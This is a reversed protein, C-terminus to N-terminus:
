GDWSLGTGNRDTRKMELDGNASRHRASARTYLRLLLESRGHPDGENVLKSAARARRSKTSFGRGVVWFSVLGAFSAVLLINTRDIRMKYRWSMQHHWEALPTKEHPVTWTGDILRARYAVLATPTIPTIHELYRAEHYSAWSKLRQEYAVLSSILGAVAVMVM